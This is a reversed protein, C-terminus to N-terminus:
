REDLHVFENLRVVWRTGPLVDLELKVASMAFAIKWEKPLAYWFASQGLIGIHAFLFYAGRSSPELIELCQGHIHQM